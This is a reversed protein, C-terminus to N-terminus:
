AGFADPGSHSCEEFSMERRTGGAKLRRTGFARPPTRLLMEICRVHGPDKCGEGPRHADRVIGQLDLGSLPCPTVQRAKRESSGHGDLLDSCRWPWAHLGSRGVGARAVGVAPCSASSMSIIFSATPMVGISM